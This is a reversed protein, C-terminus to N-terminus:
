RFDTSAVTVTASTVTVEIATAAAPLVRPKATDAASLSVNVRYRPWDRKVSQTVQTILGHRIQKHTHIYPHILKWGRDDGSQYYRFIWYAILDAM